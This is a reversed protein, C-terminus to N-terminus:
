AAEMVNIVAGPSAMAKPDGVYRKVAMLVVVRADDEYAGVQTLADGTSRVLKDLDPPVLPWKRKKAISPPRHLTFAIVLSVPGAIRKNRAQEIYAWKVSERWPKVAKSSEVMVGNGVHRKSGQPGPIGYVTFQFSTVSQTPKTDVQHVPLTTLVEQRDAPTLPEYGSAGMKNKRNLRSRLRDGGLRGCLPNLLAPGAM